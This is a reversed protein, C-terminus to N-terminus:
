NCRVCSREWTAYDMIDTYETCSSVYCGYLDEMTTCENVVARKLCYKLEGAEMIYVPFAIITRNKYAEYEKDARIKAIRGAYFNLVLLLLAGVGFWIPIVYTCYDTSENRLETIRADYNEQADLWVCKSMKAEIKANRFEKGLKNSVSWLSDYFAKASKFESSSLDNISLLEAKASYKASDATVVLMELSDLKDVADCYSYYTTDVGVMEMLEARNDLENANSVVVVTGFIGCVVVIMAVVASVVAVLVSNRM